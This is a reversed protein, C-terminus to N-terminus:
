RRGSTTRSRAASGAGCSRASCRHSVLLRHTLARCTAAEGAGRAESVFEEMQEKDAWSINSFDRASVKGDIAAHNMVLRLSFRQGSHVRLYDFVRAFSARADASELREELAANM